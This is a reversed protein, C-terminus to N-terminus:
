QKPKYTYSGDFRVGYIKGKSIDMYTLFQKAISSPVEFWPNGSADAAKRAIAKAAASDDYDPSDEDLKDGLDQGAENVTWPPKNNIVMGFNNTEVEVVPTYRTGELPQESPFGYERLLQHHEADRGTYNHLTSFSKGNKFPDKNEAKSLINTFVSITDHGFESCACDVSKHLNQWKAFSKIFDISGENNEMLVIELVSPKNGRDSTLDGGETPSYLKCWDKPHIDGM